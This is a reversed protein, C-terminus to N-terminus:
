GPKPVVTKRVGNGARANILTSKFTARDKVWAPLLGWRLSAFRRAGDMERIIPVNQTPAINYRRGPPFFIRARRSSRSCRSSCNRIKSRIPESM